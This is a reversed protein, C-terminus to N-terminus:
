FESMRPEGIVIVITCWHCELCEMGLPQQVALSLEDKKPPIRELSLSRKDIERDSIPM